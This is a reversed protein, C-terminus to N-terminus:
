ISQMLRYLLSVATVTMSQRTQPVPPQFSLLINKGQLESATFGALVDGNVEFSVRDKEADAIQEFTKSEKEIMYQLTDEWQNLM